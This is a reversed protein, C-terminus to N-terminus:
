HFIQPSLQHLELGWVHKAVMAIQRNKDGNAHTVDVTGGSRSQLRTTM